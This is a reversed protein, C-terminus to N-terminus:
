KFAEPIPNDPALLKVIEKFILTRHAVDPASKQGLTTTVVISLRRSPLHAFISSYGNINPNVALWDNLLIIGLGYIGPGASNPTRLEKRSKKSLLKDTSLARALVGLDHLTSTMQAPYAWSPSWFTCDEYIGRDRSFAHLAPSRLAATDPSETEKLGLPKFVEEDLLQGIPKGGVQRLVEGLIVFNTHSYNWNTGPQYQLPKALGLDVLEQARWQRFPEKLNATRFAESQVYDPYGSSCNALMRLTVVDAQPLKPYWRALRDDLSLRRKEALRLLVMALCTYAVGGVRYHMNEAAPVGAMSEGLAVTLVEEDQSWIGALIASLAHEQHAQQLLKVIRPGNDAFALASKGCAASVLATGLWQRRNLNLEM